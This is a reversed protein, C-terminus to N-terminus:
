RAAEVMAPTLRPALEAPCVPNQLVIVWNGLPHAVSAGLIDGVDGAFCFVRCVERILDLGNM